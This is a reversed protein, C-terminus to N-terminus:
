HFITFGCDFTVLLRSLYRLLHLCRDGLRAVQTQDRQGVPHFLVSRGHTVWTHAM